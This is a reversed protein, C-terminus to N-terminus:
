KHQQKGSLKRYAKKTNDNEVSRKILKQTNDNEVSRKILKM